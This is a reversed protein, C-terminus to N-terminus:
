WDIPALSVACCVSNRSFVLSMYTLSVHDVNSCSRLCSIFQCMGDLISDPFITFLDPYGFCDLGVLSPPIFEEVALRFCVSRFVSM